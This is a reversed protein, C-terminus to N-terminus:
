GFESTNGEMENITKVIKPDIGRLTYLIVNDIKRLKVLGGVLNTSGPPILIADGSKAQEIADLPATPYEQDKYIPKSIIVSGDLRLLYVAMMGRARAQLTMLNEFGVLDLNYLQEAKDLDLAMSVTSSQAGRISERVYAQAVDVSSAVM